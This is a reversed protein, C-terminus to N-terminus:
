WKREHIFCWLKGLFCLSGNNIGFRAWGWDERSFESNRRWKQFWQLTAKYRASARRTQLQLLVSQTFVMPKLCLVHMKYVLLLITLHEMSLNLPTTQFMLQPQSSSLHSLLIRQLYSSMIMLFTRQHRSLVGAVINRGGIRHELFFDFEAISLCWRAVKQRSHHWQLWGNLIPM